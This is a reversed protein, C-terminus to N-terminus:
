ASYEEDDNCTVSSASMNKSMFAKCNDDHVNHELDQFSGITLESVDDHEQGQEHNHEHEYDQQQQQHHHHHHHHGKLSQGDKVEKEQEMSNDQAVHLQNRIYIVEIAHREEKLNKKMFDYESEKNCHSAIIADDRRCCRIKWSLIPM